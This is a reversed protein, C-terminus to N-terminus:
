LLTALLESLKSRGQTFIGIYAHKGASLNQTPEARYQGGRLRLLYTVQIIRYKTIRSEVEAFVGVVFSM